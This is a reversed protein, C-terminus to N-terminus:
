TKSRSRAFRRAIRLLSDSAFPKELRENPVEALFSAVFPDTAGGTVFVFREALRPDLAVAKEYLQQGTVHPMMMDCLVLDFDDGRSLAAAAERPDAFTVVEHERALLRRISSLVVVDDDVVLIRGRPGSVVPPAKPEDVPVCAPLVVTFTSGRGEESDVLLEAGLAAALNRSVSLGLGTGQGVPKTTFFPDFIRKRLSPPIGPGNDAVDVAVRGDALTRTRVTVRNRSLDSSEFSQAANVLLNVLIQTLRSEDAMAPVADGIEVLTVTKRKLEHSAMSVSTEIVIPMDVSQLVVDERALSRLGRVIKRIKDAGERAEGLVDLLERLRSSPSPGAILRLEDLAFEVNGIVYALPNNIEHGVGAALTGVTALREQQTVRETALKSTTIDDFTALVEFLEGDLFRPVANVKLWKTGSSSQVGILAGRVAEKTKLCQVVPQEDLSMRRGDEHLVPWDPDLISKGALEDAMLGFTGEIARNTLSLTGDASVVVVGESMSQFLVEFREVAKRERDRQRAVEIRMKRSELQDVVQRALLGLLHLQEPSPSKPEHDITCLTGLVFGDPTRLPMGAYFRVRPEGLVLPNDAFRPDAHSDHVVLPAGNEVVHGCFSVDRPTEPAELGYRAKFWQRDVDILSVLAIPSGLVHAALRAIDDFKAEAPTDLVDYERLAALRAEEDAPANPPRM